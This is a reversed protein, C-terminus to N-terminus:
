TNPRAKMVLLDSQIFTSTMGAASAQGREIDDRQKTTLHDPLYV